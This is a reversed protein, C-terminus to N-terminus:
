RLRAARARVDSSGRREPEGPLLVETLGQTPPVSKLATCFQDIRRRYDELPLFAEVDIAQVYHGIPARHEWDEIKNVIRPGRPMGPLLSSIWEIMTALVQGKAGSM